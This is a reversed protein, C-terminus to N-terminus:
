RRHPTMTMEAEELRRMADMLKAREEARADLKSRVTDSSLDEYFEVDYGLDHQFARVARDVSTTTEERERIAKREQPTYGYKDMVSDDVPDFEKGEFYAVRSNQHIFAQGNVFQVGFAKGEYTPNPAIVLWGAGEGKLQKVEEDKQALLEDKRQNEQELKKVQELLEEVTPVKTSM